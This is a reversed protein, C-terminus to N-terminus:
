ADEDGARCPCSFRGHCGLERFAGALPTLPGEIEGKFFGRLLDDPVHAGGPYVEFWVYVVLAEDDAGLPRGKQPKLHVEELHRFQDICNLGWITTMSGMVFRMETPAWASTFDISVRKTSKRFAFCTVERKVLRVEGPVLRSCLSTPTEERM